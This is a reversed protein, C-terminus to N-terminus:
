LVIPLICNNSPSLKTELIDGYYSLFLFIVLCCSIIVGKSFKIIIYKTKDQKINFQVTFV